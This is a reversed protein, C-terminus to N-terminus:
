NVKIDLRVGVLNDSEKNWQGIVARQPDLNGASVLQRKVQAARELALSSLTSAPIEIQKALANRAELATVDAPLGAAEALEAVADEWNPTKGELDDATVGSALLRQDFAQRQLNDIDLERHIGPDLVLTLKPRQALGEALAALQQKAPDDLTSGGARFRVVDAIDQDGGVLSALLKFPAAVINTIMTGAAQALASFIGFEPDDVDGRVDLDLNIAGSADTLLAIATEIPLNIASDSDTKAGLELGEVRVSNEGVVRGRTLQYDLKMTMVGRNVPYGVFTASYPTLRAIDVGSMTMNMHGNDPDSFHGIDGEIVVSAYGDIAGTGSVKMTSNTRTDFGSMDVSLDSIVATFQLPLAEDRFTLESDYVTAESISVHWLEDSEASSEAADAYIEADKAVGESLARIRSANITGDEKILISGRAGTVHIESLLVARKVANIDIDELRLQHFALLKSGSDEIHADFDEVILHGNIQEPVFARTNLTLAIETTGGTLGVNVQDQILPEVSALVFGTLDADIDLDGVVLDGQGTVSITAQQNFSADVSFASDRSEPWHLTDLAFAIDNLAAQGSKMKQTDVRIDGNTVRVDTVEIYWPSSDPPNTIQATKSTASAEPAETTMDDTGPGISDAGPEALLSNILTLQDNQESSNLFFGDLSTDNIRVRQDTNTVQLQQIELLAFGLQDDVQQDSHTKVAFDRITLPQVDIDFDDGSAFSIGIDSSVRGSVLYFDRENLGYAALGPLEVGALSLQGDISPVMAHGSGTWEVTGGSTLELYLRQAMPAAEPDTSLGTVALNLGNIGAQYAPTHREDTFSLAGGEVSVTGVGFLTQGSEDSVPETEQADASTLSEILRLFNNAGEHDIILSARPSILDISELHLGSTFLSGLLDFDIRLMGFGVLPSGDVDRLEADEISVALDLPDILIISTTFTRQTADSVADDALYNVVPTVIVVILAIWLLLATFLWKALRLLTLGHEQNTMVLANLTTQDQTQSKGAPTKTQRSSLSLAM